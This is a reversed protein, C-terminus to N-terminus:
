IQFQISKTDFNLCKMKFSSNWSLQSFISNSGQTDNTRTILFSQEKVQTLTVTSYSMDPQTSAEEAAQAKFSRFLVCGTKYTLPTLKRACDFRHETCSYTQRQNQIERFLFTDMQRQWHNRSRDRVDVFPNVSVPTWADNAHARWIESKAGTKASIPRFPNPFDM